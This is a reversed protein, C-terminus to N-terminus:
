KTDNHLDWNIDGQPSKILALSKYKLLDEFCLPCIYFSKRSIICYIKYLKNINIKSHCHTCYRRIM